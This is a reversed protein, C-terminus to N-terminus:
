KPPLQMMPSTTPTPPQKANTALWQDIEKVGQTDGLKLLEPRVAKRTQMETSSTSSTIANHYSEIANAKDGTLAYAMALEQYVQSTKDDAFNVAANYLPIREKQNPTSQAVRFSLAAIVAEPLSGQEQALAERQFKTAETYQGRGEALYAEMEKSQCKIDAKWTTFTLYQKSLESEYRMRLQDLTMPMPNAKPLNRPGGVVQIFGYGISSSPYQPMIQPITMQTVPGLDQPKLTFAQYELILPLQTRDADGASLWGLDGGTTRSQHNSQKALTAFSSPDKVIADHLRIATAEADALGQASKQKSEIYIWRVKVQQTNLTKVFGDTFPDPQGNKVMDTILQRGVLRERVMQMFQDKNDANLLFDNVFARRFDEDSPHDVTKGCKQQMFSQLQETYLQDVTQLKKKEEPTKAAAEATKAQQEVAQRVSTLSTNAFELGMKNAERKIDKIGYSKLVQTAIIEQLKANFIQSRQPLTIDLNAHLKNKDLFEQFAGDIDNAYIKEGNVSALVVNGGKRYQAQKQASSMSRNPVSWLFVGVIFVAILIWLIITATQKSAMKRRMSMLSM